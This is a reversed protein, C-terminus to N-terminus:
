RTVQAALACRCGPHGPPGFLGGPFTEALGVVVGALPACVACAGETTLWEKGSVVGSDQWLLVAGRTYAAATETQAILLARTPSQVEGLAAIQEALDDVSWGEAAQKGVLARIEDRTTEAVRRVDTALEGLTDQVRPNALDFARDVQIAAAEAAYAQRLVAPYFRLMVDRIGDGDDLSDLAGGSRAATAYQEALYAEVATAIEAERQPAGWTKTAPRRLAMREAPPEQDPEPVPAPESEDAPAAPEPAPDAALAPPTEPDADSAPADETVVLDLGVLALAAEKAVGFAVAAKAVALADGIRKLRATEPEGAPLGLQARREATDAVGYEIDYGLIPSAQVVDADGKTPEPLAVQDEDGPAPQEPYGLARRVEATTLVGEKKAQLFFRRRTDQNEQLAAVRGLDYRVEIAKAGAFGFEPLLDATVESAFVRWLPVLTDQTFAKRAEQYNAYTAKDLGAGVGAIIPPVRFAAAIRTEPIRHLAEFALEELDLGLRSVTAGGEVVAVDGRNDGGYRARWQEKTRRYEDDSLPRDSPVTIVTRPIADNKLLARLYRTVENDIDVDAAAAQLPPMAQWPQLPDPSPWKFCVVDEKAVPTWTGDGNSFEYGMLWEPGGPRPRMNGFHYPWLEVVRNSAGRVKHWYSQGGLAAYVITAIQLEAEGMMRNPKRLLTRLPHTPLTSADEAEGDYVQMTPEPFAFALASICAFVASNRQYGERTLAHFTPRLVSEHVWSPVVSFGSTKLLLNALGYRLRTTWRPM